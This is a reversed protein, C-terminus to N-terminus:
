LVLSLWTGPRDSGAGPPLKSEPRKLHLRCRWTSGHLLGLGIQLEFGAPALFRTRGEEVVSGIANATWADNEGWRMESWAGESFTSDGLASSVHLRRQRGDESALFLDLGTHAPGLFRVALYLWNEDRKVLLEHEADLTLAAADAWEHSAFRGNVLVHTGRPVAVSPAPTPGATAAALVLVALPLDVV